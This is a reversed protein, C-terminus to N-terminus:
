SFVFRGLLKVGVEFGKMPYLFGIGGGLIFSYAEFKEESFLRVVKGGELVWWRSLGTIGEIFPHMKEIRMSWAMSLFLDLYRYLTDGNTSAQFYNIGLREGIGLAREVGVTFSLTPGIPSGDINDGMLVSPGLSLDLYGPFQNLCLTVLTFLTLM